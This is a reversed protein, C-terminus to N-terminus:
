SCVDPAFGPIEFRPARDRRPIINPNQTNNQYGKVYDKRLSLLSYTWITFMAHKDCKFFIQTIYDNKKWVSPGSGTAGTRSGGKNINGAM